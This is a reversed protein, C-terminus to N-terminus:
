VPPACAIEKCRDKAVQLPAFPPSNYRVNLIPCLAKILEKSSNQALKEEVSVTSVLVNERLWEHICETDSPSFYYNNQNVKGVLSGSDPRYGLVAGISRFFAAPRHHQLTEECLREYLLKKWAMGVYMLSTGRSRLEGRYESPLAAVDHVFIAFFGHSDSEKLYAEVEDVSKRSPEDLLQEKIQDMQIM